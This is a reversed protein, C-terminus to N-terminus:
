GLGVRKTRDLLTVRSLGLRRAAEARNGSSDALAQGILQREFAEVKARFGEDPSSSPPASRGLADVGIEGGESLAVLRAVTNELERVNGPWDRAALAHVLADSLRADEVGFREGFRAAFARALAPVDERRERLPPVVLEVVALRYLLDERLRGERAEAALDRHTCAVVRVDARETKGAGLPQVEGDQLARLLKPQVAQPLEGVEDLVITGGHALRFYGPRADKAGSFAGRAHGFLEAEALDAPLAACNFRVLPGRARPGLAHLMTAVLEKGTGTEGRVLVTVDRPALREIKAVLARMSPADGILSRGTAREAAARKAARRLSSPELARAVALAVEDVDFPKTLYDSAGVKMAQVAVRESGRATVVIVPLGPAAARAERLLTLGDMRPMALDTVLADAEAVKALAEAGDDAEIVDYGREGLLEALAFRVAPEDDCVLIRASM